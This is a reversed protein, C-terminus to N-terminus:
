RGTSGFGGDGRETKSLKKVKKLDITPCIQIEMQCIHDGIEYPAFELARGLYEKYVRHEFKDYDEFLKAFWSMNNWRRMAELQARVGLSTRNKYMVKVEGRYQHTDVLGPTNCLYASTKSNSSRPLLFMAVRKKAECYFGTHYIYRDYEADYELGIAVMDMGIDGNHAYRPTCTKLREKYDEDSEGELRPIMYKLTVSNIDQKVKTISKELKDVEEGVSHIVESLASNEDSLDTVKDDLSRKLEKLAIELKMTEPMVQNEYQGNVKTVANKSEKKKSM